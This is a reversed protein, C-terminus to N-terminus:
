KGEGDVWIDAIHVGSEERGSDWKVSVYGGWIGETITGARHGGGIQHVRLGPEYM